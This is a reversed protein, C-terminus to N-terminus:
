KLSYCFKLFNELIKLGFEGSREPHFQTGFVNGKWVAATVKCGYETTAVTVPEKPVAHYSHVFYAFGEELGRFLPCEKNEVKVLNWGIHPLKYPTKIRVVEGKIIGLGKAKSNEESREFFMQLGLCIGLIPRKLNLHREIAPLFRSLNMVGDRFAGVGPIILADGWADNPNEAVVPEGGVYRVANYVSRINGLGYDIIAVRM